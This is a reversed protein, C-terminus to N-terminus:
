AAFILRICDLRLPAKQLCQQGIAAQRELFEIEEDRINPNVAKLAVLRRIERTVSQTLQQCAENIIDAARIRAYDEAKNLTKLISERQAKVVKRATAIKLKQLQSNLGDFDVKDALNNLNHDILTRIVTPPLFRHLQLKREGSVEIVFVAEMLMTGPNLAKNRILAVSTNGTESTLLMEMGERIMPHEWTVFQMDERAIAIDRDFTITTGDAPVAPYSSVTMHSGPRVILCHESHDETELGFGEMLRELYNRLVKPTDQKRIEAVLDRNSGAGRSNLELLRDRGQRLNGAMETNLTLTKNILENNNTGTTQNTDNTATNSLWEILEEALVSYVLSGAPCTDTFANLGDQYWHFLRAQGTDELWPVHIHTTESQGIRDLRGIRQELLDPNCPLDFLVLHHAFQFNRGESGIESCILLQAGYDEDAFWAAARDREVISMGEHFVSAQVGSTIRLATELDMATTANACIVLVKKKKLQKLFNALWGVRPDVKWWPAMDDGKISAQYALEPFLQHELVQGSGSKRSEELATRYLGPLQQPYGQLVRGPFGPVSARTNRFLIRGTGHRDLLLRILQEKAQDRAAQESDDAATLIALLPRAEEGVLSIIVEAQKASLQEAELLQQVARALPKYGASEKRFQKLDHFRDPDLLRLRAFHSEIGLQEPTATLLLVSPTSNALSEILQYEPSGGESETWLLHHAEDVVLLDWGADVAQAQREPHDRLFELSTLILQESSFPNDGDANRCREADFVSFHLHFRRLMEVLWQHVLPEPTIVLVRSAQGTLLQQSLVLGAEITKGLGVEDALLVRPSFRSGVENAIHLQHPILSARAGTLGPLPSQILQNYHCLTQYRLSFNSDLDIQGALLRDQPKNFAIFNGLCSEPLDRQEGNDLTGTYTVLGNEERIGTVTLSWGEHSEVTDGAAFMIRTLPCNELRYVRTEGTAPFFLTVTRAEVTLITGLGQEIETDSIWRQGSVFTTM